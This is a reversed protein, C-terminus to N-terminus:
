LCTHDLTITHEQRDVTESGNKLRRTRPPDRHPDGKFCDLAKLQTLWASLTDSRDIEVRITLKQPQIDLKTVDVLLPADPQGPLSLQKPTKQSIEELFRLASRTPPAGAGTSSTGAKLEALIDHAQTLPKGFVPQTRERAEQELLTREHSADQWAATLAMASSLLLAMAAIVVNRPRVIWTTAGRRQLRRVFDIHAVPRVAALALGLPTAFQRLAEPPLTATRELVRGGVSTPVPASTVPCGLAEQLWTHVEPQQAYLGALLIRKPLMGGYQLQVHQFTTRLEQALRRWATLSDSNAQPVPALSPHSLTRAFGLTTRNWVVGVHSHTTGLDVVAWSDEVPASSTGLMLGTAALASGSVWECPWGARQCSELLAELEARLALGVVLPGGAPSAPNKWSDWVYDELPSLLEPELETPLAQEIKKPDSFPFVFTKLLGPAQMGAMVRSPHWQLRATCTLLTNQLSIEPLLPEEHTALVRLTRLGAELLVLRISDTSIEMGVIRTAM